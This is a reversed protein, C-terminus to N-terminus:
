GFLEKVLEVYLANSWSQAHCGKSALTEADSLEGAFGSVGLYLLEHTSANLIRKIETEFKVSDARHLVIAALNNLWFWSDGRHYSKNDAGTHNKCYLKHDQAITSLGGWPLWLKKLITEFCLIWEDRSLLEPYAYAAIFVNPRITDDGAGDRLYAGTWFLKRTEQKLKSEIELTEGTLARWLRCSGLFLAQIEIREGARDDGGFSADMWTEEPCASVPSELYQKLKAKLQLLEGPNLYEERSDNADLIDLWEEFRLFLWGPADVAKKTSGSYSHIEPLKNLHRMLINKVLKHNGMLMLAKASVLEDRAWFQYFWPLGAMIGLDDVALSDLANVACKVAVDLEPLKAHFRHVLQSIRQEPKQQRAFVRKATQIAEQKSTGFGFVCSKLKVTCASYVHRKWPWSNREEDFRYTQEKWQKLPKYQLGKGYVATWLEYELGQKERSDNKKQYHILLCGEEKFVEYERGWERDDYIERCDFVLTVESQASLEYVLADEQMFLTEKLSGRERVVSALQNQLKTIQQTLEIDALTKFMKGRLFFLGEFRSNPTSSFSCYGGRRNTLLFGADAENSSVKEQEASDEIKM